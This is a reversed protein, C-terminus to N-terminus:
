QPLLTFARGMDDLVSTMSLADQLNNFLAVYSLMSGDSTRTWGAMGRVGTLLATKGRLNGVTPSGTMRRLLTGPEGAVPLSDRLAAGADSRLALMLNLVSLLTMPEIRDDTSLGSGDSMTLGSLDIKYTRSLTDRVVSIGAVTSGAGGFFAGLDKILMEAGYNVSWKNTWAIIQSVPPSLVSAIHKFSSPARGMRVRGAVSIGRAELANKLLTAALMAPSPAADNGDATLGMNVTLGSLNGVEVDAHDQYSKKWGPQWRSSDFISEDAIIDGNIRRVGASAIFGALEEITPSGSAFVPVKGNSGAALYNAAAFSASALTPDGGGIMAISGHIVGKSDHSPGTVRTAFRTKPGFRTMATTTTLLKLLSAPKMLADGNRSYVVRGDRAAAVGPLSGQTQSKQMESNVISIIRQEYTSDIRSYGSRALAGNAVFTQEFPDTALSPPTLLIVFVIAFALALSLRVRHRM